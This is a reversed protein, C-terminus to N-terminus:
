AAGEMYGAIGRKFAGLTGAAASVRAAARSRLASTAAHAPFGCLLVRKAPAGLEDEVYAFTPQLVGLFKRKTPRISRSV